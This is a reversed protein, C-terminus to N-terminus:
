DSDYFWTSTKKNKNEIVCRKNDQRAPDASKCIKCNCVHHIKTLICYSKLSTDHECTWHVICAFFRLFDKYVLWM